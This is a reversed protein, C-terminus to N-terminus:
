WETEIQVNDWGWAVLYKEIYACLTPCEGPMAEDITVTFLTDEFEVTAKLSMWNVPEKPNIKMRKIKGWDPVFLKSDKCPKYLVHILDNTLKEIRQQPSQEKILGMEVWKYYQEKNNM